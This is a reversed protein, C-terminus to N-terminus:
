SVICAPACKKHGSSRSQFNKEPQQKAQSDLDLDLPAGLPPHVSHEADVEFFDKLPEGVECPEEADGIIEDIGHASTQLMAEQSQRPTQGDNLGAEELPDEAMVALPRQTNGIPNQHGSTDLAAASRLEQENMLSALPSALQDIDTVMQRPTRPSDLAAERGRDASVPFAAEFSHSPQAQDRVQLSHQASDLNQQHHQVRTQMEQLHQHLSRQEEMFAQLMKLQDQFQTQATREKKLTQIEEAIHRVDQAQEFLLAEIAHLRKDQTIGKQLQVNAQENAQLQQNQITTWSDLHKDQLSKIDSVQALQKGQSDVLSQIADQVKAHIDERLPDAKEHNDRKQEVNDSRLKTMESELRELGRYLIDIDTTHDSKRNTCDFVQLAM